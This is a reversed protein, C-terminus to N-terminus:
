NINKLKEWVIMRHNLYKEKNEDNNKDLYIKLLNNSLKLEDFVNVIKLILDADKQSEVIQYLEKLNIDIQSSIDDLNSVLQKLESDKLDKKEFSNYILDQSLYILFINSSTLNGVMSSLENNYNERVKVEQSFLSIYTLILLLILKM